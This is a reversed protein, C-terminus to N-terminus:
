ELLEHVQGDTTAATVRPQFDARVKMWDLGNYTKDFYNQDLLSWVKMLADQRRQQAATPTSPVPPPTASAVISKEIRVVPLTRKRQAVVASAFVLCVTFLVSCSVLRRIFFM